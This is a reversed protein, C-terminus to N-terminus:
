CINRPVWFQQPQHVLMLVFLSAPSAFDEAVLQQQTRRHRGHMCARVALCSFYFCADLLLDLLSPPQLICPRWAGRGRCPSREDALGIRAVAHRLLAERGGCLGNKVLNVCGDDRPLSASTRIPLRPLLLHHPIM